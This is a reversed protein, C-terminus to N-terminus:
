AAAPATLHTALDAPVRWLGLAGRVPIPVTPRVDALVFHWQSPDAWASCSGDCRHVDVLDALAVIAGRIGAPGHTPHFRQGALREAHPAGHPDYRRAAHIAVPGRYKTTWTRNEVTKGLHAICAAWPQAVTLGRLQHGTM